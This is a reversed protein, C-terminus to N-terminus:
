LTNILGSLEEDQGGDAIRKEIADAIVPLSLPDTGLEQYTRTFNRVSALHNELRCGASDTTYDNRDIQRALDLLTDRADDIAPIVFAKTFTEAVGPKWLGANKLLAICQLYSASMTYYHTGLIVEQLAARTPDEDDLYIARGLATLAGQVEQFAAKPGSYLAISTPRGVNAPMAQMGGHIYADFACHQAMTVSERVQAPTGTGFDVVIRGAGSSEALTSFVARFAEHGTTVVLVIKSARVCGEATEHKTAGQAVLREAKGPSRNWVNVHHGKQLFARAIAAGMYGLGLVSVPNAKAQHGQQM